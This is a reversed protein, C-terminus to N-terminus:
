HRALLTFERLGYGAVVEVKLGLEGECFSAWRSPRPRYLEPVDGPSGRAVPALFNVALGRRTGAAMERLTHAVFRSWLRPPEDIRVNFIGSAVAYDAVRSSGAGQAFNARRHKSWLARAQAVMAASLDIGLYNVDAGAHQGDLHALLAGYGCGIDDLAFPHEFDCVRLLQAFRLQQGSESPWDVGAPTPGHRRIKGTYYRGIREHLAEIGAPVPV